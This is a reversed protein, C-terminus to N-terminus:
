AIPRRGESKLELARRLLRASSIRKCPWPVTTLEKRVRARRTRRDIGRFIGFINRLNKKM